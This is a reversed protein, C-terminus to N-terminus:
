APTVGSTYVHDAAVFRVYAQAIVVGVDTEITSGAPRWHVLSHPMYMRALQYDNDVKVRHAIATKLSDLNGVWDGRSLARQLHGYRVGVREGDLTFVAVGVNTVEGRVPDGVCLVMMRYAM